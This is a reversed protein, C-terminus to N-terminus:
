EVLVVPWAGRLANVLWLKGGRQLESRMDDISIDRERVLGRRVLEQRALGPLFPRTSPPTVFQKESSGHGPEALELVINAISSETLYRQADSGGEQWLLVDFCTGAPKGTPLLTAGVNERAEDYLNRATTKHRMLVQEQRSLAAGVGVTNLRVSVPTNAAPTPSLAFHHVSIEGDPRVALRVRKAESIASLVGDLKDLMASHELRPRIAESTPDPWVGPAVQHLAEFADLLRQLHASLLPVRQSLTHSAVIAPVSAAAKSRALLARFPEPFHQELAASSAAESEANLRLTTFIEEPIGRSQSAGSQQPKAQHRWIAKNVDRIRLSMVRCHTCGLTLQCLGPEEEKGYEGRGLLLSFADGRM